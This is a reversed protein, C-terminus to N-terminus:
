MGGGSGEYGILIRYKETRYKGKQDPDPEDYEYELQFAKSIRVPKGKFQWFLGKMFAGYLEEHYEHSNPDKDSEYKVAKNKRNVVAPGDTRDTTGVTLNQAHLESLEKKVRAVAAQIKETSAIDGYPNEDCLMEVLPEDAV